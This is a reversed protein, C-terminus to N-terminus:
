DGCEQWASERRELPTENEVAVTVIGTKRSYRYVNDSLQDEVPVEAENIVKVMEGLEKMRLSKGYPIIIVEHISSPLIVLDAGLKESIDRLVNDYLVAAAGHVGSKNSLVYLDKEEPEEEEGSPVPLGNLEKIIQPLSQFVYPRLRPTNERALKCLEGVGSNWVNVHQHHILSSMCGERGEKLLVSFVMALDCFPVWPIEELLAENRECNVLHCVVRDKIKQFDNLIEKLEVPTEDHVFVGYIDRAVNELSMEGNEYCEYYSDLYIVSGSDEGEKRISMGRRVVGNNKQVNEIRLKYGEGCLTGVAGQVRRAFERFKM